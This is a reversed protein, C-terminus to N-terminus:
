QNPQPIPEHFLEDKAVSQPDAGDKLKQIMLKLQSAHYNNLTTQSELDLYKIQNSLDGRLAYLLHLGHYVMAKEPKSDAHKLAEIYKKYALPYNSSNLATTAEKEFSAFIKAEAYISGFTPRSGISDHSKGCGILVSAIM